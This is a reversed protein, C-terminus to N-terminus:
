PTVIQRLYFFVKTTSCTGGSCNTTNATGSPTTSAMMFEMTYFTKDAPDSKSWHYLRYEPMGGAYVGPDWWNPFNSANQATATVLAASSGSYGAWINAPLRAQNNQSSGVGGWFYATNSIIDVTSASNNRVQLNVDQFLNGQPVFCRVSFKGDPTTADLSYGTRGNDTTLTLPGSFAITSIEAVQQSGVTITCSSTYFPIVSSDLLFSTSTPSSVTPTGTVNFVLYGNGVELKGEQLTLTLGNSTVSSGTSYIGGNGGTYPVKVVGTYSTGAVYSSPSLSSGTCNLAAISPPVSASSNLIRWESGNWYYYGKSLATGTNYVFLGTANPNSSLQMTNSTLNVRPALMGKNTSTLDLIASADPTTTGIGTNGTSTVIFDNVQQTATPVGTNPNDKSGDIHFTNQPNTTNIGVQGFAFSASVALSVVLIKRKM